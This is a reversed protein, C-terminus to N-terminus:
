DFVTEERKSVRKAHLCSPVENMQTFVWLFM